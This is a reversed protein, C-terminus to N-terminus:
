KFCLHRNVVGYVDIKKDKLCIYSMFFGSRILLCNEKERKNNTKREKIKKSKKLPLICSILLKKM